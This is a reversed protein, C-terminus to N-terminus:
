RTASPVMSLVACSIDSNYELMPWLLMHRHLGDAARFPQSGGCARCM